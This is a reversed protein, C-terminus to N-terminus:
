SGFVCPRSKAPMSRPASRWARRSSRRAARRSGCGSRRRGRGLLLPRAHELDHLRAAQDREEVEGVLAEGVAEVGVGVGRPQEGVGHRRHEQRARERLREREVALADARQADDGAAGLFRRAHEGLQLADHAGVVGVRRRVAALDDGRDEAVGSSRLRQSRLEALHAVADLLHALASTSLMWARTGPASKLKTRLCRPM